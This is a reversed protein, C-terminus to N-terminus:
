WVEQRTGQHDLPSNIYKLQMLFTHSYLHWRIFGGKVKSRINCKSNEPDRKSKSGFDSHSLGDRCELTQKFAMEEIFSESVVSNEIASETVM